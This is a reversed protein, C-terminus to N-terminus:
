MGTHFRIRAKIGQSMGGYLVVFSRILRFILNDPMCYHYGAIRMPIVEHRRTILHRVRADGFRREKWDNGPGGPWVLLIMGKQQSEIDDSVVMAM